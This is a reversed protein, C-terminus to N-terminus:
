DRFALRSREILPELLDCSEVAEGSLLDLRALAGEFPDRQGTSCARVSWETLLANGMVHHNLLFSSAIFDALDDFLTEILAKYGFTAAVSQAFADGGEHYRRIRERQDKLLPKLERIKNSESNLADVLVGKKEVPILTPLPGRLFSKSVEAALFRPAAEEFPTHEFGEIWVGEGTANVLRVDRGATRAVLEFWDVTRQFQKWTLIEGGGYRKVMTFNPQHVLNERNQFTGGCTAGGAHTEGGPFSLDQGVMLIPNAGLRLAFSMATTSVSYAHPLVANFGSLKHLAREFASSNEVYLLIRSLPLDFLGPFVKIPFVATLNEPLDVGDFFHSVDIAEDSFVFDPTIGRRLLPKLAADVSLLVAKGEYRKLLDLHRDLSPGAGVIVVPVGAGRGELFAAMPHRTVRHINELNTGLWEKARHKWVGLGMRSNEIDLTFSSVLDKVQNGYLSETAPESFISGELGLRFWVRFAEALEERETTIFFRDQVLLDSFDHVLLALKLLSPEPELVLLDTRPNRALEKVAYGLGMGIVVILDSNRGSFNECRFRAEASPHDPNHVWREGIRATWQGNRAPVLWDMPADLADLRGALEPFRPRLAAVNRRYREISPDPM